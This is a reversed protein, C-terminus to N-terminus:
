ARMFTAVAEIHYTQPFMDLPQVDQLAYGKALLRKADRALTAPDCSVYVIKPPSLAALADLATAEVGSRPPDLVAADFPEDLEPLVDEVLGEILTVNSLDSLNSDADDVATPFGEVATVFAAREALFATFLGVGSYLELVNEKGQLALRALVLDVLQETLSLNAQFFSGATVQFTRGKISYHVKGTGILTQPRGDAALFSVSLPLDIEVSPPLDDLTSLAILREEGDTGVQLRIHSLNSGKLAELDLCELLDQLEPRIIHCEQIPVIHQPQDDASFFGVQGDPTVHLTVHTRYQWQLPSPLVASVPPAAIGGIRMLQDVVIQQKFSLQAAYDIHQWHCGGCRKPGFHPCHPQVRAESSELLMVGEAYAFRGKDQTIRATIREGPIAYPVFIARGEHRGIASGGHAMTTLELEILDNSQTPHLEPM